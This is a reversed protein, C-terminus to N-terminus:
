QLPTAAVCAALADSDVSDTAGHNPSWCSVSSDQSPDEAAPSHRRRCLVLADTETYQDVDRQSLPPSLEGEGERKVVANSTSSVNTGHILSANPVTSCELKTPKEAPACSTERHDSKESTADLTM